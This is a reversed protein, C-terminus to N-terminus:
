FEVCLIAEMQHSRIELGVSTSLITVIGKKIFYVIGKTSLTEIM